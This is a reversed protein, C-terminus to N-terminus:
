GGNTHDEVTYGAPPDTSFLEDLNAVNVDWEFGSYIWKWRRVNPKPNAAEQEIRVPLKSKTDVWLTTTMGPESLQYKRAEQDDVRDSTAEIGARKQFDELIELFTKETKVNTFPILGDGSVRVLRAVKGAQGSEEFLEIMKLQDPDTTDEKTVILAQSSTVLTRNKRSDQVTVWDSQVTDNLTKERREVRFRPSQLDFYVTDLSTGTVFEEGRDFSVRMKVEASTNLQYRVINHSNTAELVEALATATTPLLTWWGVAAIAIVAAASTFHRVHRMLFSRRDSSQPSFHDIQAAHSPLRALLVEIGPSRPVPMRQIEDVARHLTEDNPISSNENM